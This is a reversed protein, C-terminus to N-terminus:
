SNAGRAEVRWTDIVSDGQVVVLDDALNVAACVHNPVIRLTSGLDPLAAADPFRITAHHESLATVRADPFDLLRGGGTAWSPQDAGLVKSGADAIVDNGRKSVVTAHASLAVDEWSCSGLEVQQADNFVYVGPRLENVVQTDTASRTPTSGGSRLPADLGARELMFAAISMADAEDRAAQALGNPAYGHGPFTFVGAVTLGARQAALAV